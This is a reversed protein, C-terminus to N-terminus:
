SWGKEAKITESAQNAQVARAESGAVDPHITKMLARYRAKFEVPTFNGNDPLGFLRCAVRFADVKASAERDVRELADFYDRFARYSPFQRRFERYYARRLALERALADRIARLRAFAAAARPWGQALRLRAGLVIAERWAAPLPWLVAMAIQAATGSSLIGLATAGARRLFRFPYSLVHGAMRLVLGPLAAVARLIDRIRALAVMTGTWLAILGAGHAFPTTRHLGLAHWVGFADFVVATLVVVAVTQFILGIVRGKESGADGLHAM